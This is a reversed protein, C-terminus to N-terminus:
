WAPLPLLVTPSGLGSLRRRKSHRPCAISAQRQAPVNPSSESDVHEKVIDRYTRAHLEATQLIVRPKLWYPLAALNGAITISIDAVALRHALRAFLFKWVNRLTDGVPENTIAEWRELDRLHITLRALTPPLRRHHVLPFHHSSHTYLRTGPPYKSADLPEKPGVSVILHQVAPPLPFHFGRGWVPSHIVVIPASFMQARGPATGMLPCSFYRVVELNPFASHWRADTVTSAVVDLFRVSRTAPYLDSPLLSRLVHM